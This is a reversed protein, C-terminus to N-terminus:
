KVDGKLYLTYGKLVPTVSTNGGNKLIAKFKVRNPLSSCYIVGTTNDNVYSKSLTDVNNSEVLYYKRPHKSNVDNIGDLRYWTLGMDISIYSEIVANKSAYEVKDIDLSIENIGFTTIYSTSVLTAEPKYLTYGVKINNIGIAYRWAPFVEKCPGVVNKRPSYKIDRSITGDSQIYRNPGDVRASTKIYEESPSLSTYIPSLGNSGSTTKYYFEHIIRTPYSTDQKFILLISDTTIDVEPFQISIDGDSNQDFGCEVWEKTKYDMYYASEISAFLSNIVKVDVMITNVKKPSAIKIYLPMLLKGGVDPVGYVENGKSDASCSSVNQTKVNSYNYWPIYGTTNKATTYTYGLGYGNTIYKYEDPINVVEYEFSTDFRNDLIHNIDSTASTPDSYEIRNDTLYRDVVSDSFQKDSDDFRVNRIRCELNNGIFGNGILGPDLNSTDIEGTVSSVVADLMEQSFIDVVTVKCLGNYTDEVLVPLTGTGNFIRCTTASLDIKSSDSLGDTIELSKNNVSDVAAAKTVSNRIRNILEKTAIVRASCYKIHSSISPLMANHTKILININYYLSKIFSIYGDPSVVGKAEHTAVSSDIFRESDIESVIRSMERNLAFFTQLSYSNISSALYKAYYEIRLSLVSYDINIRSLM